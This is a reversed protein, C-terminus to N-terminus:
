HTSSAAAKAKALLIRDYKRQVLHSLPVIAIGKQQLTPLWRSLAQITQSYPHGIAVANGRRRAVQELKALQGMIYSVDQENDLFIDRTMNPIARQTAMAALLSKPSTRSDLVLLGRKGVEDLLIALGRRDETFASGMHNNIGVYGSFRSLDFAIDQRIKGDPDETQLAHPGPNNDGKPEMPLHLMLEHGRRRALDTLDPLDPAYPLFSLTLPAAIDIMALTKDRVVGLDDIIIAIQPKNGITASVRVANNQWSEKTPYAPIEVAGVPPQGGSIVVDIIKHNEEFALADPAAEDSSEQFKWIAAFAIGLMLLYLLSIIERRYLWLLIVKARKM